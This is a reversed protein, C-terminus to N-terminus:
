KKIMIKVFINFLKSFSVEMKLLMKLDMTLIIVLMVLIDFTPVYTHLITTTSIYDNGLSDTYHHTPEDFYLRVSKYLEPINLQM